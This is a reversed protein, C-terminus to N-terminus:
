LVESVYKTSKFILNAGYPWVPPSKIVTSAVRMKIDVYDTDGLVKTVRYHNKQTILPVNEPHNEFSVLFTKVSSQVNLTQWNKKLLTLKLFGLLLLFLRVMALPVGPVGETLVAPTMGLLVM